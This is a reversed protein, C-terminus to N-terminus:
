NNIKKYILKKTDGSLLSYLDKDIYSSIVKELGRYGLNIQLAKDVIYDIFNEDIEYDINLMELYMNFLKLYSYKGNILSNKLDEKTPNNLIITSGIRGALESIVGYKELTEDTIESEQSFMKTFAGSLVFTIKSTDFVLNEEILGRRITKNIITGDLLKLISEQVDTTNVHHREDKVDCLKDFEDIFIIGHEFEDIKKNCKNYLDVLISEIDEGIYGTSTYRKADCIVYPVDLLHALSEVMLTKGVGTPGILLLNSKLRKIVEIDLNSYSISINKIIHALFMKLQDDQGYIIEKLKNYMEKIDYNKLIPEKPEEILNNKSLLQATLEPPLVLSGTEDINDFLNNLQKNLSPIVCREYEQHIQEDYIDKLCLIVNSHEMIEYYLNLYMKKAKEVIEEETLDETGSKVFNVNTMQYVFDEEELESIFSSLKKMKKNNVIAYGNEIEVYAVDVIKLMHKIENNIKVKKHEYIEILEM